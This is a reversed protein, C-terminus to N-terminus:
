PRAGQVVLKDLLEDITTIRQEAVLRLEGGKNKLSQVYSHNSVRLNLLALRIVEYESPSVLLVKTDTV